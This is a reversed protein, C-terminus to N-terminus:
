LNFTEYQLYIEKQIAIYFRALNCYKGSIFLAGLLATLLM